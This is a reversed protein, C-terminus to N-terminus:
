KDGSQDKDRKDQNGKAMAWASRALQEATYTLAMASGIGAAVGLWWPSGSERLRELLAWVLLALLFYIQKM